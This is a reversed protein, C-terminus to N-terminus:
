EVGTDKRRTFRGGHVNAEVMEPAGAEWLPRPPFHGLSRVRDYM